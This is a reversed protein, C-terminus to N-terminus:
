DRYAFSTAYRGHAWKITAVVCLGGTAIDDTELLEYFTLATRPKLYLSFTNAM